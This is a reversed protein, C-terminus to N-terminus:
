RSRAAPRRATRRRPRRWTPASAARGATRPASAGGRTTSTARGARARPRGRAVAHPRLDHEDAAGQQAGRRRRRPLPEHPLLAPQEGAFVHQAAHGLGRDRVGGQSRRRLLSAGLRDPEDVIVDRAAAATDQTCRAACWRPGCSASRRTPRSCTTSRSRRRARREHRGHRPLRHRHAARAAPGDDSEPVRLVMVYPIATAHMDWTQALIRGTPSEAWFVSCGDGGLADAGQRSAAADAGPRRADAGAAVTEPDPDLDRLDTYHNAVVIDEPPSARARPSASCSRTSRRRSLAALVPLHAKAAAM